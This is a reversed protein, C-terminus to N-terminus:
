IRREKKSGANAAMLACLTLIMLVLSLAAGFPWDRSTGFQQQILNGILMYRAGGLMDPVIFMGMAPVFTLTIGTALGPMTQPLIAHRFVRWRGGYLDNAAEVISWDMKEVASYIPLAAFPLFVSIMGLYVAFQSPYLTTGPEVLHMASLIRSFPMSGDLVLLWAYTRIVLNTWFPILLITLWLVRTRAPRTALFFALPYSLAVCFLTTFFGVVVSRWFILLNDASWGFYGFGVLRKINELTLVPAVDGYEGRAMFSVVFLSLCPLALLLLIVVVGPSVFLAQRARIVSPRVMEGNHLIVKEGVSAPELLTEQPIFKNGEEIV